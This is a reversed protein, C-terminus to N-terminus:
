SRGFDKVLVKRLFLAGSYFATFRLGPAQLIEDNNVQLRIRELEYRVYLDRDGVLDLGIDFFTTDNELVAVAVRWFQFLCLAM